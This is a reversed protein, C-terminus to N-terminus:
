FGIGAAGPGALLGFLLHVPVLIIGFVLGRLPGVFFVLLFLILLWQRNRQYFASLRQNARVSLLGELIHSGDLPSIPILNFFALVLNAFVIFALVPTYVGALDLRLPIALVCATILNSLPGWLSVLVADRRPHRMAFPNIPVPKAWGFGLVLFMTSGIPDYHALPNLTVRGHLRPTLDGAMDAAKAHSFEHVTIAIMVAVLWSLLEALGVRGALFELLM